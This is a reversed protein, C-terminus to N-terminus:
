RSLLVLPHIEAIEMEEGANEPGFTMTIVAFGAAPSDARSGKPPLAASSPGKLFVSWLSFRNKGSIKERPLFRM